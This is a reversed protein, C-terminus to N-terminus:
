RNKNINKRQDLDEGPEMVDVALGTAGNFELAM